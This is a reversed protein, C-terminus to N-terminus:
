LCAQNTQIKQYKGDGGFLLYALFLMNVHVSIIQNDLKVPILKYVNTMYHMVYLQDTMYEYKIRM